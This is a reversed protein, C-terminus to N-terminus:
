IEGIENIAGITDGTMGSIKRKLLWTFFLVPILALLLVLLGKLQMLVFFVVLTFIGGILVEIKTAQKIFGAAKGEQRAYDSVYCVLAMSWRSFTHAMILAQWLVLTSFSIILAFKALLILVIGIVGMTGIRRDRMIRLIQNKDRGAYFGDCTDALGDLHIGGTSVVAITLVLVGLVFCPVHEALFFVPGASLFAILMGVPPFWLLSKGLDKDSIEGKINVPFITLFQLAIFFHKM